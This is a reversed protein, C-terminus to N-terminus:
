GVLVGGKFGADFPLFSLLETSLDKGSLVRVHGATGKGTGVIIDAFGDGNVDGSTVTVGGKFSPDYAAFNGFVNHTMGSVIHVSAPIGSGSSIIVDARGDRDVDGAAVFIGGAFKAGFPPPINFIEDHGGTANAEADFVRVNVAAGKVSSVIIDAKLDGNVDGAAVRVGKRFTPGYAPFNFLEAGTAGNFVRVQSSTKGPSTIIDARGDGNVDGSAVFVGAKFGPAYAFPSDPVEFFGGAGNGRLLTV